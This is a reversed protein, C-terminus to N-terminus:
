EIDKSAFVLSTWRRSHAALFFADSLRPVMFARFEEGKISTQCMEINITKSDFYCQVTILNFFQFFFFFVCILSLCSSRGNKMRMLRPNNDRNQIATGCVPYNVSEISNEEKNIIENRKDEIRRSNIEPSRANHITSSLFSLFYLASDLLEEVATSNM